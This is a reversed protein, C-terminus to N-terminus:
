RQKKQTRKGSARYACRRERRTDMFTTLMSTREFPGRTRRGRLDAGRLYPM